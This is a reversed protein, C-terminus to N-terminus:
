IVKWLTFDLTVSEKTKNPTQYTKISGLIKCVMYGFISQDM